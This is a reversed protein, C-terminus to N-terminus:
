AEDHRAKELIVQRGTVTLAGMFPGYDPAREVWGQSKAWSLAFRTKTQNIETMAVVPRSRFLEGLIQFYEAHTADFESENMAIRM